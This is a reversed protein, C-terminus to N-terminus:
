NSKYKKDIHKVRDELYVLVVKEDETLDGREKRVKLYNNVEDTFAARKMYDISYNFSDQQM